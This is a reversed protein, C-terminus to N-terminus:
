GRGPAKVELAHHFASHIHFWADEGLNQSREVYTPADYSYVVEGNWTRSVGILGIGFLLRLLPQYLRVWDTEDVAYSWLPEALLTLWKQGRFDPQALLLAVDDLRGALEKRAFSSPSARFMDIAKHIDPYTPKWEDRLALLRKESYSREAEHLVPWTVAPKGAALNICENAFSIADRPRLLTRRLIYALADGKAKNTRPLLDRFRSVGEMGVAIAAARTREDLLDELETKTWRMDVVLARLKEEQGVREAFELEQFINTRLAVLIKLNRVRKLDLVCRFLCRILTNALREDVWDRDLDDIVVFTYNQRDLIDEDLVEIMKNLRPLQSENVIRQFREIQEYRSQATESSGAAAGLTAEAVQPFRAQAKADYGVKKEFKEIIERVREDTECWFRDQFEDLYELAQRKAQNRAIRQGLSALFNQKAEPSDVNYRHRILEVLLVHKWLAIFFPDLRVELGDLYKLVGLNTIYPLALNEPSIRVVHSPDIEELHQLVASKGGGTRGILFCRPDTKSSLVLYDGSEYFAESLLPDVEAQEVGLTFDRRLRKRTKKSAVRKQKAVQPRSVSM